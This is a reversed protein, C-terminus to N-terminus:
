YITEYSKPVNFPFKQVKDIQIKSYTLSLSLEQDTAILIDISEAFYGDNHNEFDQYDVRLVRNLKYNKYEQSQLKFNAPNVVATYVEVNPKRRNREYKKTQKESLTSLVFLQQVLTSFYKKATFDHFPNGMLLAQIRNFSLPSEIKNTLDTYSNKYYTKDFRNMFRISDRDMYVRGLELGLGPSISMWIVSDKRIKLNGKFSFSQKNDKYKGSLKSSFWEIEFQSSQISDVLVQPKPAKSYVPELVKSSRCSALGIVLSILM